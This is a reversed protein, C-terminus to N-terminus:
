KEERSEMALNLVAARGGARAARARIVELSDGGMVFREMEAVCAEAESADSFLVMACAKKRSPMVHVDDVQGYAAFVSRVKDETVASPLNFVYLRSGRPESAQLWSDWSDYYDPPYTAAHRELDTDKEKKEGGSVQSPLPRETEPASGACACAVIDSGLEGTRAKSYLDIIFDIQNNTMAVLNKLISLRPHAGRKDEELLQEMFTVVFKQAEENLQRFLDSWRGPLIAPSVASSWRVSRVLLLTSWPGFSVVNRVFADMNDDTWVQQAFTVAGDSKACCCRWGWLLDKRIKWRLLHHLVKRRYNKFIKWDNEDKHLNGSRKTDKRHHYPGELGKPDFDKLMKRDYHDWTDIIVPLPLAAPEGRPGSSASAAGPRSRGRSQWAETQRSGRAQWSDAGWSRQWCRGGRWSQGAAHM